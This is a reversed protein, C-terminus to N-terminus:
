KKPAFGAKYDIKAKARLDRLHGEMVKEGQAQRMKAVAVPRSADDPLPTAEKSAIVNAVSQSGAPIIFPEASPLSAIKEYLPHPVIASSLSTKSRRFEIGNATLVQALAELSHAAAIQNLVNPDQPTAYRLQEINWVERKAFLEPRSAEFSAVENPSPLKSSNLKRAALMGILLDETVRRQRTVFEPSKDLGDARAQQALLRRDIMAQLVQTTAAKKDMGPPLKAMGLESNLESITIEEGNVVAVSQGEAKRDCGSLILAAALISVRYRM